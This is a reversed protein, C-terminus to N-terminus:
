MFGHLQCWIALCGATICLSCILVTIHYLM